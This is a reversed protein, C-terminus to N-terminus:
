NLPNGFSSGEAVLNADRLAATLAGLTDDISLIRDKMGKVAFLVAAKDSLDEPLADYVAQPVRWCCLHKWVYWNSYNDNWVRTKNKETLGRRTGERRAAPRLAQLM